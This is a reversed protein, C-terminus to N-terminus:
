STDRRIARDPPCHGGRREGAFRKKSTDIHTQPLRRNSRLHRQRAAPPQKRLPTPALMARGRLNRRRAQPTLNVHIPATTGSAHKPSMSQAGLRTQMCRRANTPQPSAHARSDNATQCSVCELFLRNSHVLVNSPGISQCTCTPALMARGHLNRHKAQLALDAQALAQRARRAYSMLESLVNPSVDLQMQQMSPMALTYLM